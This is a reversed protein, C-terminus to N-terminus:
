FLINTSFQLYRNEVTFIELNSVWGSYIRQLLLPQRVEAKDGLRECENCPCVTKRGEIVPVIQSSVNPATSLYILDCSVKTCIWHFTLHGDKHCSAIQLMQSISDISPKNLQTMNRSLGSTMYTLRGRFGMIDHIM